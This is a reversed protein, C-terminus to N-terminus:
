SLVCSESKIITILDDSVANPTTSTQQAIIVNSATAPVVIPSRTGAPYLAEREQQKAPEM